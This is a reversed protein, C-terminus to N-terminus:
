EDRELSPNHKLTDKWAKKQAEKGFRKQFNQKLEDSASKWPRVKEKVHWGGVKKAIAKKKDKLNM